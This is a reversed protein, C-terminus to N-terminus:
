RCRVINFAKLNPIWSPLQKSAGHLMACFRCWFRTNLFIGTGKWGFYENYLTSNSDLLKLYDALDKTTQFEDVHIFSHYPAVKRYEAVSAGM